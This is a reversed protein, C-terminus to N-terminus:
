RPNAPNGELWAITPASTNFHGGVYAGEVRVNSARGLAIGSRELPPVQAKGSRGLEQLRESDDLLRMSTGTWALWGDILATTLRQAIAPSPVAGSTDPLFRMANEPAKKRWFYGAPVGDPQSADFQDLHRLGIRFPSGLEFKWNSPLMRWGGFESGRLCFFIDEDAYLFFAGPDYDEGRHLGSRLGAPFMVARGDDRRLNPIEAEFGTLAADAPLYLRHPEIQQVHALAIPVARPADVFRWAHAPADVDQLFPQEPTEREVFSHGLGRERRRRISSSWSGNFWGAASIIGYPRPGTEELEPWCLLADTVCENM